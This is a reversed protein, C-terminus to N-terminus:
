SVKNSLLIQITRASLLNWSVMSVDDKIQWSISGLPTKDESFYPALSMHLGILASSLVPKVKLGREEIGIVLPCGWDLDKNGEYLSFCTGNSWLFPAVDAVPFTKESFLLWYWGGERPPWLEPDCDSNWSVEKPLSSKLTKLVSDATWPSDHIESEPQARERRDDWDWFEEPWDDPYESQFLQSTAEAM